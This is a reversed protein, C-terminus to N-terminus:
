TKGTPYKYNYWKGAVSGVGSLLSAGAKLYSSSVANEGVLGQLRAESEFNVGRTEFGLAEREANSQITLADLRGLAATDRVLQGASDQGVTVGGGALVAKQRGILRATERGQKEAEIEGRRRVDEAKYGAITANNRAVAARYNAQAKAQQGAQYQGAVTVATGAGTAILSIIASTELGSM